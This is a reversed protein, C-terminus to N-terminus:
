VSYRIVLKLFSNMKVHFNLLSYVNPSWCSEFSSVAVANKLAIIEADKEIILQKLEEKGYSDLNPPVVESVKATTKIAIPEEIEASVDSQPTIEDIKDLKVEATVGSTGATTDTGPQSSMNGLQDEIKGM